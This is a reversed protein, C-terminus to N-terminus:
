VRRSVSGILGGVGGMVTGIVMAVAIKLPAGTLYFYNAYTRLSGFGSSPFSSVILQWDDRARLVDLFINLRLLIAVFYVAFTVLAVSAGAKMGDTVRGSRRAALFGTAAWIAFMPGYFALLATGSDDSVPDRATQILNWAGFAVGVVVGIVASRKFM